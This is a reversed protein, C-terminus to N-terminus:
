ALAQSMGKNKEWAEWQMGGIIDGFWPKERTQDGNKAQAGLGGIKM